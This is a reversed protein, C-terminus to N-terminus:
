PLTKPLSYVHFLVTSFEGAEKKEAPIVGNVM